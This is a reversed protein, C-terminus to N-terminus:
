VLTYVEQSHYRQIKFCSALIISIMLYKNIEKESYTKKEWVGLVLM